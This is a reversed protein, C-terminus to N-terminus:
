QVRNWEGPAVERYDESNGGGGYRYVSVSGDPNKVVRSIDGEKATPGYYPEIAGKIYQCNRKEITGYESIVEDCVLKASASSAFCILTTM